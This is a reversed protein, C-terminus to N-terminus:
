GMAVMGPAMKLTQCLMLPAMTARIYELLGFFSSQCHFPWSLAAADCGLLEDVAHCQAIGHKTVAESGDAALPPVEHQLIPGEGIGVEIHKTTPPSPTQDNPPTPKRFSWVVRSSGNNLALLPIEGSLIPFIGSRNLSFCKAPLALVAIKAGHILPNVTNICLEM